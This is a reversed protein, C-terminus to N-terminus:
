RAVKRFSKDRKYHYTQLIKQTGLPKVIKQAVVSKPAALVSLPLFSICPDKVANLIVPHTIAISTVVLILAGWRRAPVV